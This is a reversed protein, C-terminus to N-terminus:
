HALPEIGSPPKEERMSYRCGCYNQRYIMYKKCLEISKQFGNNKKFDTKLYKIGYKQSLKEGTENIMKTNKLPSLTLTTAVCDFGLDKAKRFTDELRFEYCFLCRKGKEPEDKFPKAGTEWLQRRNPSGNEIYFTKKYGLSFKDIFRIVENQRKDFEEIPFINPNDYFVSITYDPKESLANEWRDLQNLVFLCQTLCPACCTHLILKQPM